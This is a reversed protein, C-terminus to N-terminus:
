AFMREITAMPLFLRYDDTEFRQFGFREYFRRADDDKADVIVAMAAVQDRHRFSRHLADMLLLKGFGGGRYRRDVALRGILVTPFAPYRPLKRAMDPPLDVPEVSSASLTYYGAVANRERDNLVFVAALNRRVDQSSQRQFYHDLAEVGCTFGARDHQLGLPEFLYRDQAM